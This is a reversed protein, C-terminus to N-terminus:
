CTHFDPRVAPPQGVPSPTTVNCGTGGTPPPACTSATTTLSETDSQTGTDPTYGDPWDIFLHGFNDYEGAQCGGGRVATSNTSQNATPKYQEDLQANNFSLVEDLNLQDVSWTCYASATADVILSPHEVQPTSVALTCWIVSPGSGCDAPQVQTLSAPTRVVSPECVQPAAQRTAEFTRTVVHGGAPAAAPAPAAYAPVSGATLLAASAAGLALTAAALARRFRSV